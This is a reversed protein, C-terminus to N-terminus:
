RQGPTVVAGDLYFTSLGLLDTRYTHTGMGQLHDLTEWRPHHYSNHLGVSIVAYRPAVAHLFPPISSTKSGHHGVKLLDAALGPESLMRAESPAEADGELLASTKGYALHLVLSDNNSARPSPRYDPAPALVHVDAAGFVFVDGAAFHRVDTGRARAEALLAHYEPIDPNNGVWLERPNFNRLVAAMGGMHDSHAHTLAVADLRRIHRSWLYPSVVDEGMEFNGHSAGLGGTPGGADVLLTKGSPFVVLLADGQGVDIATVELTHDRRTINAPLLVCTAAALLSAVGLLLGYRPRRVAYIAGALFVLTAVTAALNPGPIRLDGASVHSFLHIIGTVIHLVAATLTAPVFALGPALLLTGLTLFAAPLLLALAPIILVNVPLGFVTVRHFYVAMPLAMTLEIVASVLVVELTRLLFGTVAALGIQARRNARKYAGPKRHSLCRYVLPEIHSAILRLTVRFQAVRPPLSSDLGIIPLNRTARLSPGFTRELVPAVLGAIAIVSLLTMQLSADALSRPSIVLLCLAAFGIANLDTRDRFLLRGILYLAIMFLARQVPQGFGTLLAYGSALLLTLVTALVRPLRLRRAALMVMAAFLGLHLGSVVLLHFSGTREFGVRIARGLYTRDGTVMASLMATDDRDLIFFSPLRAPQDSFALLRDSWQQQLDHLWCQWTPRPAHHLVTIQSGKASGLAGIGQTLLWAGGDWVGPDRYHEPARLTMQGAIADGCALNPLPQGVPTYLSLRVGGTVPIASGAGDGVLRVRLDVSRTLEERKQETFPVTSVIQRVPGLKIIEAQVTHPTADALQILQAQPNPAPTTEAAVIGLLVWMGALPFLAIRSRCCFLSATTVAGCLLAALAALAPGVWVRHTVAIGSAFALAAFLLPATRFRLQEIQQLSEAARTKSQAARAPAAAHLFAPPIATASM